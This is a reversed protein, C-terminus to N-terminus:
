AETTSLVREIEAGLLPGTEIVECDVGRFAPMNEPDNVRVLVSDLDCATALLQAVMLGVRDRETGFVAVDADGAHRALDATGFDVHRADFGQRGAKGVVEEQDSLLRVEWNEALHTALGTATEGGVVLLQTSDESSTLLGM